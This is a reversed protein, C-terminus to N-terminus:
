QANVKRHQMVTGTKVRQGNKISFRYSTVSRFTAGPYLTTSPFNPHNPSDPLHQTELAFGDYRRYGVGENGIESGDFSNGSNFQLTPETTRIQLRRGSSTEAIVAVQALRGTWRTVLLSHDIGAPAGLLAEGGALRDDLGVPQRFDLPTGAVSAITGLPIKNEDTPAFRDADIQFLHTSLGATGAGALNFFVHNTLNLVTPADTAAEYEIRLENHRRLLRYTVRVDLAGPFNQDGDPSMLHFVSGLSGADAFDRRQWVRRDYGNPGGHLTTGHAGPILSVVRGDLTYRANGIRGAYRGIIAGWRRASRQYSALDPLGLVVNQSRGQRDPVDIEIITAGWDVYAVKMGRENQLTVRQVKEGARASGWDEVRLNEGRACAAVGFMAIFLVRGLGTVVNNTRPLTLNL